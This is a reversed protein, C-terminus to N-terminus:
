CSDGGGSSVVSNPAPTATGSSMSFWATNCAGFLRAKSMFALPKGANDPQSAHMTKIQEVATATLCVVRDTSNSV